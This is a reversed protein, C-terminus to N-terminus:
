MALTEGELMSETLYVMVLVAAVHGASAATLRGGLGLAALEAGLEGFVDTDVAGGVVGGEVADLSPREAPAFAPIPM